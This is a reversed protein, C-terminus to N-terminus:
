TIGFSLFVPLNLFCREEETRPLIMSILVLNRDRCHVSRLTIWISGSPTFEGTKYGSLVILYYTRVHAVERLGKCYKLVAPDEIRVSGKYARPPQNKRDAGEKGLRSPKDKGEGDNYCMDKVVKCLPLRDLLYLPHHRTPIATKPM